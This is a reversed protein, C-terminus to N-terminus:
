ARRIVTRHVPEDVGGFRYKYDENGQLFDFRKRGETIAHQILEALLVWGPSLQPSASTDYGSNYVLIDGHYDFCFYTAAPRDGIDLFSLQLWGREALVAAVARFYAQMEETMFAHKAPRSLRHLAIFSEVAETLDAGGRVIRLQADPAEREIRRLKRRIEHREKKDLATLYLEWGDEGDAAQPLTIVPCVDEQMVEVRLNQGRALEALRTYALSAAPENCLELVDWAPAEPGVLWTLFARYVIEEQGAEIILDLYDSVEVCGVVTLCQVGDSESLYLPLIGILRGAELAALLFLPGRRAGLHRWWTSQWEWTLFITDFRSRGLLANWEDRLAEFGSEDRYVILEV